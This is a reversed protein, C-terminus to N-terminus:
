GPSWSRKVGPATQWSMRDAAGAYHLRFYPSNQGSDASRCVRALHFFAKPGNRSGSKKSISFPSPVHALLVLSALFRFLQFVLRLVARGFLDLFAMTFGYLM